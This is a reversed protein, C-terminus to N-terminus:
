AGVTFRGRTEWGGVLADRGADRWVAVELDGIRFVVPGERDFEVIDVAAGECGAEGVGGAYDGFGVVGQKGSAIELEM